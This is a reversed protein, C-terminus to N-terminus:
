IRRNKFIVYLLVAILLGTVALTFALPSGVFSYLRDDQAVPLYTTKDASNPMSEDATSADAIEPLKEAEPEAM